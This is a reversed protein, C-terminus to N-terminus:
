KKITNEMKDIAQVTDGYLKDMGSSDQAPAYRAFECTNLIDIFQQVLAEDVGYKGLEMEVNDKTLSAVPINLKDSLYGWVARLVEDYFEEKKNEKLLKGAVKLRKSAVKNAKKTRVLAINANEAAQKRYIIFFVIFLLAPIIYSLWFGAQGFFSEGKPTYNVGTTKIYRIDQGVLKLDEKNSAKFVAPETGTGGTGPEVHLKFENTYLTKYTGSKIDFYSFEARPIEFDGAFRPVAVYEITKSGSVGASAVKTNVDVKPDYIDFDKPFVIEPNSILKINGNGSITVKVTIAENAKVNNSSISSKMSYEGLAGNFSAPKGSPLPKVTITAPASTLSKKVPAYTDLFSDFISQIQQQTRVQVVVDYKGSGITITGSHQPYLIAQKLVFALYNRGQFNEQEMQRNQPLEIDQSVFGEFEPFKINEFTRVDYRSYLKFTVLFGENEYVSNKSVHMRIFLNENSVGSSSNGSQSQQGSAESEKDKPLVKITVPNSKYESNGIKITAPPITFTGEKNAMLTYITSYTSETVWKGNNNVSRHDENSIDMLVDFGTLDTVRLDKGSKNSTYTLRFQQGVVVSSPATAKFTVDQASTISSGILLLVFLFFLKRMM